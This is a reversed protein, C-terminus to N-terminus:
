KVTAFQQQQKIEPIATPFDSQEGNNTALRTIEKETIDLPQDM